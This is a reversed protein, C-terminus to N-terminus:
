RAGGGGREPRRGRDRRARVRAPRARARPRRGARAARRRAAELERSAARLRRRLEAACSSSSPAATPTSCTSSPPRRADAQPARAPRLVVLLRGGLERLDAVTASRGCVYARTRGDPWVRRALVIEEAGAPIREDAGASSRRAARVRGRRLGGRRRPPRDRQAGPRRAASRARARAADQRRRDRRHAHEPGPALRLEAREMLLLNEVRLEHLMRSPRGAAGSPDAAVPRARSRRRGVRCRRRSGASSRACATTSPRGPSRPWRARATSSARRSGSARAGARVVPRGDVTM